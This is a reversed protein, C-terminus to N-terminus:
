YWNRLAINAGAYKSQVEGINSYPTKISLTDIMNQKIKNNRTDRYMETVSSRDLLSTARKEMLEREALNDVSCSREQFKLTRKSFKEDDQRDENERYNEFQLSGNPFCVLYGVKM